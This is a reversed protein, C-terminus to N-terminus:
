SNFIYNIMNLSLNILISLRHIVEKNNAWNRDSDARMWHLRSHKYLYFNRDDFNWENSGDYHFSACVADAKHNDGSYSGDRVWRCDHGVM